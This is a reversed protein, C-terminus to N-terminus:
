STMVDPQNTAGKTSSFTNIAPAAYEAARQYACWFEKAEGSARAYKKKLRELEM